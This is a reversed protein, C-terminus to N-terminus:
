WWASDANADWQWQQGLEASSFEDSTQPVAQAAGQVPKEWGGVPVGVDKLEEATFSVATQIKPALTMTTVPNKPRAGILPWGGEWKVPQLHAIRGYPQREQFHLFWWRGDPGDVLAGQHPGNVPTEGQALVIKQEYPGMVSRSRLILQWGTPVGGAPASIYYRGDKKFFKPGELTPHREPEYFVIEGEGLVKTADPAMPRVRLRNKIGARSGAYAHVLYAKGDEDWLPCPDIIGKGALLMWPESWAGAPDEATTVYVGEDPTPFFIWYKGGHYRIAPAWVGCGHLPVKYQDGPVTKLAHNVITWNVLDRSHLIPLGPTDTFSSATLWFDGGVRIVDPDSYDACLVPNRYTGDGRDPTWPYVPELFESEMKAM